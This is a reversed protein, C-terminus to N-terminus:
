GWHVCVHRRVPLRTAVDELEQVLQERQGFPLLVGRAISEVLGHDRVREKHVYEKTKKTVKILKREFVWSAFTSSKLRRKWEHHM